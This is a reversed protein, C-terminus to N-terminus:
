FVDKEPQYRQTLAIRISAMEPGSVRIDLRFNGKLSFRKGVFGGWHAGSRYTERHRGLDIEDGDEILYSHRDAETEVGNVQVGAYVGMAPFAAGLAARGELWDVAVSSRITGSEAGKVKAPFLCGRGEGYLLLSSGFLELLKVRVGAEAAPRYEGRFDTRGSRGEIELDAVGAEVFGDMWRTVGYSATFAFRRSRFAEEDLSNLYVGAGIGGYIVGKGNFLFSEAGCPRSWGAAMWLAIILMRGRSIRM